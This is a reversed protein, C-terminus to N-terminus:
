LYRITIFTIQRSSYNPDSTHEKKYYTGVSVSIDIPTISANPTNVTIKYNSNKFSGTGNISYDILISKSTGVNEDEFRENSINLTFTENNVNTSYPSDNNISVESTGDYVKDNATLNVSVEVPYILVSSKGTAGTYSTNTDIIKYYVDYKAVEGNSDHKVDIYGDIPKTM